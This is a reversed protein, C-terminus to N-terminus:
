AAVRDRGAGKARYLMADAQRFAAHWGDGESAFPAIGISITCRTETRAIDCLTEAVHMAHAPQQGAPLLAAFEDGGLRVLQAGAPLAARVGQALSRLVDDGAAHGHADNLQKFRDIDFLILDAPYPGTRRLHDLGARNWVGTLPDHLALTRLDAEAREGPMSLLAINLVGLLLQDSLLPILSLWDRPLGHSGDLVISMAYAPLYALQLVGVIRQSRPARSERTRLYAIAILLTSVGLVVSNAIRGSSAGDPQMAFLLYSLGSVVPMAVVTVSLPHDGRFQRLAALLYGNYAGLGTCLLTSVALGRMGLGFGALTAAYTLAAAGCLLYFTGRERLVWMTVFLLGFSLSSLTACLHVTAYDFSPLSRTGFRPAADGAIM